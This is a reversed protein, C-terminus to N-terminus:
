FEGEKKLSELNDEYRDAVRQYRNVMEKRMRVEGEAEELRHQIENKIGDNTATELERAM